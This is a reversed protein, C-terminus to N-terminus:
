SVMAKWLPHDIANIVWRDLFISGILVVPLGNQVKGGFYQYLAFGNQQLFFLWYATCLKWAIVSLLAYEVAGQSILGAEGAGAALVQLAGAGILMAACLAIERQWHPGRLFWANVAFLAAGLWAGALMTALLPWFPEIIWGRTEGGIPEDPIRYTAAM